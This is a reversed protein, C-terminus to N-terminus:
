RALRASVEVYSNLAGPPPPSGPIVFRVGDGNDDHEFKGKERQREAPRLPSLPPM